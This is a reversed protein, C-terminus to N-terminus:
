HIQNSLTADFFPMLRTVTREGRRNVHDGEYEEFTHTIGLNTLARSLARTTVPIFHYQDARGVDFGIARLRRLNPAYQHLHELPANAKWRSYAPELPRRAWRM